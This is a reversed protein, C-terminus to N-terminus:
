VLHWHWGIPLTTFRALFAEPVLATGVMRIHGMTVLNDLTQVGTLDLLGVAGLGVDSTGLLPERDFTDDKM